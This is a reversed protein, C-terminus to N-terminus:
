NGRTGPVEQASRDAGRVHARNSGGRAPGADAFQVARASFQVIWARAAANKAERQEPTEQPMRRIEEATPNPFPPGTHERM